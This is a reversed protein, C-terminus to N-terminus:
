RAHRSLVTMDGRLLCYIIDTTRDMAACNNARELVLPWLLENGIVKSASSTTEMKGHMKMERNCSLLRRGGWNLAMYYEMEASVDDGFYESFGVYELQFNAQLADRIVKAGAEGVPNDQLWLKRLGSSATNENGTETVSRTSTTTCLSLVTSVISSISDDFYNDQHGPRHPMLASRTFVQVGQDTIRNSRVDLFQLTRNDRLALGLREMDVDDLKNVSLDLHLLSRNYRIANILTTEVPFKEDEICQERLSLRELRCQPIELATSDKAPSSHYNHKDWTDPALLRSVAAIGKQRCVNGGFDLLRLSPCSKHQEQLLSSVLLQIQDDQLNSWFISLKRLTQRAHKLGQALVPITGHDFLCSKIFLSELYGGKWDM